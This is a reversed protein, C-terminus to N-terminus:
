WEYVLIDPVFFSSSGVLTRLIFYATLIISEFSNYLDADISYFKILVSSRDDLVQRM